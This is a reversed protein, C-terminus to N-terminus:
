SLDKIVSIDVIDKSDEQIRPCALTVFIDIFPFNETQYVDLNDFIFTYYKKDPFKDKLFNLGNLNYQGPKISVLIGVNNASLFKVYKGKMQRKVKLAENHFGRSLEGSEPNLSFISKTTKLAIAIPHFQGTGFFLFCDVEKLLTNISSVDCGLVQGEYKQNGKGLFVKKGGKELFENLEAIFKRQQIPYVLGIRNPLKNLISEKLNIKGFNNGEIFVCKM